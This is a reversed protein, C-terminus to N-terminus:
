GEGSLYWQCHRLEIERSAQTYSLAENIMCTVSLIYQNLLEKLRQAASFMTQCQCTLQM